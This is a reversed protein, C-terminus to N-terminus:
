DNLTFQLKMQNEGLSLMQGLLKNANAQTTQAMQNNVDALYSHLDAQKLAVADARHQLHRCAAVSHEEFLNEQDEYLGFNSDGILAMINSLWYMQTPDCKGTTGRYNAPTDLVNAYFPVVSNFTNPGFALWHIAAIEAPVDNRIQLIHLEQNRNIGIPRYQKKQADTGTGYPDYPTNQYHSSLVFKIDEVSIKHATRCIFPLNQDDPTTDFEPNFYKQVYWARANNYRTDKITASGFIHRLNVQDPDPNLHNKEILDPLDAAFMTDDSNFDFQAINLRNPAVVYADDPVRVAAWHHGGISEFYWVENKDSFAMANMEYTGYKELFAGLRKVGERASHIYPLVITTFDEEGIGNDVLPDVGLIRSNSTITETATMAVNASNIGAAAWIGHGDTADPTSTYRLPDDPLDFNVPSLVSQYHRPQDAPQVVVFKEPNLPAYGDENRAIITSGDLSAQKGVLFTTCSGKIRKTM